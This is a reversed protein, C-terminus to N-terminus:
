TSRHRRRLFLDTPLEEHATILKNSINKYELSLSVPFDKLVWGGVGKDICQVSYRTKSGRKADDNRNNSRLSIQWLLM